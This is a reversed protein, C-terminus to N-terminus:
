GGTYMASIGSFVAVLAKGSLLVAANLYVGPIHM